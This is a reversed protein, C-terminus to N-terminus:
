FTSTAWTPNVTRSPSDAVSAVLHTPQPTPQTGPDRATGGKHQSTTHSTTWRGNNGCKGCWFKWKGRFQVVQPDTPHTSTPLKDVTPAERNLCEPKKHGEQGCQHCTLKGPKDSPEVMNGGRAKTLAVEVKKAIFMELEADTMSRIDAALNLEPAKKDTKNM